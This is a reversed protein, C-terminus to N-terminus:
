AESMLWIGISSPPPPSCLSLSLDALQFPLRGPAQSLLKGKLTHLPPRGHWPGRRIGQLHPSAGARPLCGWALAPVPSHSPPVTSTSAAPPFLLQAQHSHIRSREPYNNGKCVCLCVCVSLWVSTCASAVNRGATGPPSDAVTRFAGSLAESMSERQSATANESFRLLRQLSSVPLNQFQRSFRPPSARPGRLGRNQPPKGREGGTPQLSGWQSPWCFDVTASPALGVAWLSLTPLLPLLFPLFPSPTIFGTGYLPPIPCSTASTLGPHPPFKWISCAHPRCGPCLEVARPFWLSGAPTQSSPRAQRTDLDKHNTHMFTAWFRVATSVQPLPPHPPHRPKENSM